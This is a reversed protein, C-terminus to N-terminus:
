DRNAGYDNEAYICFIYCFKFAFIFLFNLNGFFFRFVSFSLEFTSLRKVNFISCQSLRIFDILNLFSLFSMKRKIKANAFLYITLNKKKKKNKQCSPFFINLVNFIRCSSNLWNRKIALWNIKEAFLHLSIKVFVKNNYNLIM